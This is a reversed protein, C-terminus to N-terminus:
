TLKEILNTRLDKVIDEEHEGPFVEGALDVEVTYRKTERDLRFASSITLDAGGLARNFIRVEAINQIMAALLLEAFSYSMIKATIERTGPM